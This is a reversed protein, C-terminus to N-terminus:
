SASNYGEQLKAGALEIADKWQENLQTSWDAGHFQSLTELMAACFKPYQERPIGWDQHKEGLIKLYAAIAPFSNVYYQVSLQLAMTLLVAQRKMNVRAFYQRVEPYRSFFHTYFLEALPEKRDLVRALSQQIDM